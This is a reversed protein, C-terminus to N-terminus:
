DIVLGDLLIDGLMRAFAPPDAEFTEGLLVLYPRSCSTPEDTRTVCM